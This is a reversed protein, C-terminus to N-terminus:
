QRRLGANRFKFVAAVLGTALLGLTSPEPVLVPSFVATSQGSVGENGQITDTTFAVSEGSPPTIIASPATSDVFTFTATQGGALASGGSTNEYQISNLDLNNAWGLTNGGSSPDSPLNNGSTTWGYWFSNLSLIGTNDLTITYDWNVGDQVASITASASQAHSSLTPAIFVAAVALPAALSKLLSNM